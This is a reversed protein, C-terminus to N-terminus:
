QPSKEAYKSYRDKSGLLLVVLSRGVYLISWLTNSSPIGGLRSHMRTGREGIKYGQRGAEITVDFTDGLYHVPFRRAFESLLPESIVRFGSSSDTLKTKAARSALNAMLRMPIRKIWTGIYESEGHFRSGIALHLNNVIAFSILDPIEEPSHQGDADCQVVVRYGHSIAWRFGCRLAGGVGLNVPLRIVQAGAIRALESTKDKSGDDVVLINLGLSSVREVVERITRQENYAPIVVLVSDFSNMVRRLEERFESSM